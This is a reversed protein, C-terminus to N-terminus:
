AMPAAQRLAARATAADTIDGNAIVPIRVAEKVARIAQGTPM